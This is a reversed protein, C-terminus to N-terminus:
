SRRSGPPAFWYRELCDRLSLRARHMRVSLNAETIQLASCAERTALGDLQRLRFAAALTHPLQKICGELTDWFERSEAIQQPDVRWARPKPAWKGHPDFFTHEATSDLSTNQELRNRRRSRIEDAIKRRLIGTLWTLLTSDGRFGKIAALGALFTEQVLDEAMTPDDTRAVAFAYLSDGYVDAWVAPDAVDPQSQDAHLGM